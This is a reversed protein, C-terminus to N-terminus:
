VAENKIQLFGCLGGREGKSARHSFLLSPNCCTCIDTIGINTAPIGANIMNVFNCYRLDLKFKNDSGAIPYLIRDYANVGYAEVFESAVDWSIEYCDKCICPGIFAIIDEPATGFEANMMEITKQAINGVTGRWGSHSLGIARRAVDVFFLPVCDAYSTVLCVGPENTILGDINDFDRERVIGMGCHEKTVRMVNTTHTQKAYVMNHIDVGIAEGFLEFNKSVCAQDDNRTYTLNMSEYIGTSVGGLRTSFAHQLFSINQFKNFTIYPVSGNIFRTSGIPNSYVINM